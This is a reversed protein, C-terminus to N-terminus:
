IHAPMSLLGPLPRPIKKVLKRKGRQEYQLRIFGYESILQETFQFARSFDPKLLFDDEMIMIPEGCEVCHKWLALHSAYCGIEGQTATRGTNILFQREDYHEFFDSWGNHAKLADFFDFSMGAATLQKASCKRRTAQTPLNIIFIKM